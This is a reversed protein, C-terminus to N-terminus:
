IKSQTYQWRIAEVFNIICPFGALLGFIVAGAAVAGGSNIEMAPFIEAEMIGGAYLLTLACLLVGIIVMILKDRFDPRYMKYHTLNGSGYGRSKMSDSTIIGDELVGSTLISINIMGAKIGKEGKGIGYRASAIDRVKRGYGPLFGLVMVFIMALDPMRNGFVYLLKDGTIVISYTLCWLVVAFFAAGGITGFVFAELTYPREGIFFLVTNGKLCFLPNLAAIVFAIALLSFYLGIGESRRLYFYYFTAGCLSIAVFLPHRIIVTFIFVGLYFLINVVPNLKSFSEERKM